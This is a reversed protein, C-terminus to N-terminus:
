ILTERYFALTNCCTYTKHFWTVGGDYWCIAWPQSDSCADGTWYWRDEDADNVEHETYRWFWMLEARSPLYGSKSFQSVAWKKADEYAMKEKSDEIAVWIRYTPTQLICLAETDRVIRTLGILNENPNLPMEQIKGNKFELGQNNLREIMELMADACNTHILWDTLIKEYNAM